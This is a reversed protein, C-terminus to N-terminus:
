KRNDLDAYRRTWLLCRSIRGLTREVLRVCNTSTQHCTFDVGVRRVLIAIERNVGQRLSTFYVIVAQAILSSSSTM